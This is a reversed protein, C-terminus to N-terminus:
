YRFSEDSEERWLRVFLENSIVVSINNRTSKVSLLADQVKKIVPGRCGAVETQSRYRIGYHVRASLNYM